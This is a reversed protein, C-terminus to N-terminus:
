LFHRSGLLAMPISSDRRPLCSRSVIYTVLLSLVRIAVPCFVGAIGSAGTGFGILIRAVVFMPINQSAAQLIAAFITLVAAWLLAQRRGIIDTVRGYFLGALAGGIWVSSTNLALTVTTLSFYDTYSPLINL